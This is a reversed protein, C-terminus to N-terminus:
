RKDQPLCELCEFRVWFRPVPRGMKPFVTTATADGPSRGNPLDSRPREGLKEETLGANRLERIFIKQPKQEAAKGM